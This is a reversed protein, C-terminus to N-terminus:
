RVVAPETDTPALRLTGRGDCVDCAHAGVLGTGGCDACAVVSNWRPDRYVRRFPSPRHVEWGRAVADLDTERFVWRTVRDRLRALRTAARGDTTGDTV